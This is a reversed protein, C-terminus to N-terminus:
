HGVGMIMGDGKEKIEAWLKPDDDFYTGVKTRVIWTTKPYRESLLKQMETLFQHTDTFGIDVIYITKGDLTDLRPAMPVRAIPPPQGLPNLVNIKPEQAVSNGFFMSVACLIGILFACTKNKMMEKEELTIRM